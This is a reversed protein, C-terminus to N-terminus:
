HHASTSCLMTIALRIAQKCNKSNTSWAAECSGQSSRLQQLSGWLHEPFFSHSVDRPPHPALRSALEQPPATFDSGVRPPPPPPPGRFRSGPVYINM